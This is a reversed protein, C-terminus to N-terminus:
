KVNKIAKYTRYATRPARATKRVATLAGRGLKRRAKKLRSEDEHDDDSEASTEGNLQANTETSLFGALRETRRHQLWLRSKAVFGGRGPRPIFGNAELSEVAWGGIKRLFGKKAKKKEETKEDEATPEAEDETESTEEAETTGSDREGILEALRQRADLLRRVAPSEEEVTTESEATEAKSEETEPATEAKATTESDAEPTDEDTPTESESTENSDLKKAEHEDLLRGLRDMLENMRELSLTEPTKTERTDAGATEQDSAPAEHTPSSLTEKM